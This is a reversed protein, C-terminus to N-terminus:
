NFVVHDTSHNFLLSTAASQFPVTTFSFCLYLLPPLLIFLQLGSVLNISHSPLNKVSVSDVSLHFIDYSKIAYYYSDM